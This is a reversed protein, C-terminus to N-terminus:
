TVCMSGSIDVCFIVSVDSTSYKKDLVKAAAEIIYTTENGKPVEEDDIM